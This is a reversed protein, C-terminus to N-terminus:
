ENRIFIHIINNFDNSFNPRNISPRVSVIFCSIFCCSTPNRPAIIVGIASENIADIVAESIYGRAEEHIFAVNRFPTMLAFFPCSPPNRENNANYKIIFFLQLPFLTALPPFPYLLM